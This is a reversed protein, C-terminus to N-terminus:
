APRYAAPGLMVVMIAWGPRDSSPGSTKTGGQSVRVGFGTLNDDTKQGREPPKLNRLTIETLTPMKPESYARADHAYCTNLALM